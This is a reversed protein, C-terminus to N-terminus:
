VDEGKYQAFVIPKGQIFRWILMPIYIWFLSLRLWHPLDPVSWLYHTAELKHHIMEREKALTEINDLRQSLQVVLDRDINM